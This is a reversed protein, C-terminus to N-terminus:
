KSSAPKSPSGSKSATTSAKKTQAKEMAKIKKNLAEIEATLQVVQERNALNMRDLMEKVRKDITKSFWDEVNDRYRQLEKKFKDAEFKSIKNDKVLMNVLKDIEDRSMTVMNQWMSAYKKGYDFLSDGGKKILQALTGAPPTKARSKKAAPKRGPKVGKASLKSMVDVTIDKGTKTEIIAITKGTKQLARIQPQTIYKKAETDYFRGNAYKKITYM